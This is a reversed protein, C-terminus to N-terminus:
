QASARERESSPASQLSSRLGVGARMMLAILHAHPKASFHAGSIRMAICFGTHHHALRDGPLAKAGGNQLYEFLIENERETETICVSARIIITCHKGLPTGFFFEVDKQTHPGFARERDSGVVYTCTTHDSRSLSM